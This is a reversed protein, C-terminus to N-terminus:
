LYKINKRIKLAEENIHEKIAIISNFILIFLLKIYHSYLSILIIDNSKLQKSANSKNVNASINKHSVIQKM